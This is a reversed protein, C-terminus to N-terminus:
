AGVVYKSIVVDFVGRNVIGHENLTRDDGEIKQSNYYFTPDNRNIAAKTCYRQFIQNLTDNSNCQIAIINGSYNFSVTMNSM